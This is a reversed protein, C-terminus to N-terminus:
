RGNENHNQQQKAHDVKKTDMQLFKNKKGGAKQYHSTFDQYYKSKLNKKSINIKLDTQDNSNKQGTKQGAGPESVSESLSAFLCKHEGVAEQHNEHTQQYCCYLQGAM